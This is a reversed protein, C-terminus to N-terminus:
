PKVTAALRKFAPLSRLSALDDDELALQFAYGRRIADELQKVAADRQGILALVVARLYLVDPDTPNTKAARDAYRAAQTPEDVKAYYLGLRSVLTADIANVSLAQEGLKIAMQYAARADAQRGVKRYADALNGRHAAVTPELKM